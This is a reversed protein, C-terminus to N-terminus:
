ANRGNNKPITESDRSLRDPNSWLVREDSLKVSYIQELEVNFKEIDKLCTMGEYNDFKYAIKGHLDVKCIAKKGSPRKAVIKVYNKGDNEVIQPREVSFEQSRLQKIIAKVTERRVEETILTDDVESEMQSIEKEISEFDTNESTITERLKMIRQAFELAKEENEIREAKLRAETDDLISEVDKKKNISIAKKKWEEAKSEASSAIQNARQRLSTENTITGSLVDDKLSQMEKVSFNVVIPNTLGRLIEYYVKLLDSQREEREANLQEMRRREARDFEEVAARAMSSMSRIYSGVEFSLNRAEDADTQMLSKISALNRKLRNMESPIYAEYGSNVMRDYENKYRQYYQETTINIRANRIRQRALRELEYSYEYSRSM